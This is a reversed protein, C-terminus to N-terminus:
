PGREKGGERETYIYYTWAYLVNREIREIGRCLRQSPTPSIRNVPVPVSLPGSQLEPSGSYGVAPAQVDSGASARAPFM